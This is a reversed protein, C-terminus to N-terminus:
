SAGRVAKVSTFDWDEQSSDAGTALAVQYLAGSTQTIKAAFATLDDSFSSSPVFTLANDAASLTGRPTYPEDPGAPVLVRHYLQLQPSYAAASSSALVLGSAFLAVQGALM